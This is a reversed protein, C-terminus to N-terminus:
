FLTLITMLFVPCSYTRSVSGGIAGIARRMAAISRFVYKGQSVAIIAFRGASTGDRDPYVMELVHGNVLFIFRRVVGPGCHPKACADLIEFCLGESRLVPEIDDAAVTRGDGYGAAVTLSAAM